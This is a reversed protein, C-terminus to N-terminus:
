EVSDRELLALNTEYWQFKLLCLLLPIRCKTNRTAATILKLVLSRGRLMCQEQNLKPYQPGTKKKIGSLTKNVKALRDKVKRVASHKLIDRFGRKDDIEGIIKPDPDRSLLQVFDVEAM